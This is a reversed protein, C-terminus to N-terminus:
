VKLAGIITESNELTDTELGIQSFYEHVWNKIQISINVDEFLMSNIYVVNYQNNDEFDRIIKM